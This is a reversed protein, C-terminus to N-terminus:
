YEITIRVPISRLPQSSYKVIEKGMVRAYNKYEIIRKNESRYVTKCRRVRQYSPPPPPEKQALNQGIISGLIAGGVMAATKGGGKGIQNGLIGGATGGIIAGLADGTSPSNRYQQVPVEEEWCEQTPVQNSVVREVEVSRYVPVEQTLTVVEGNLWAFLATFLILKRM